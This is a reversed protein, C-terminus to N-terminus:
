QGEETICTAHVSISFEDITSKIHHSAQKTAKGRDDNFPRVVFFRGKSKRSTTNGSTSDISTSLCYHASNRVRSPTDKSDDDWLKTKLIKSAMFEIDKETDDRSVAALVLVGKGISSILQGDV